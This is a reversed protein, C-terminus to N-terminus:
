DQDEAVVGEEASVEEEAVKKKSRVKINRIKPLRFVSSDEEDWKRTSELKAIRETRSLVNRHKELRNASKFSRHISM